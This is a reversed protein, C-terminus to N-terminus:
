QKPEGEKLQFQPQAPQALKKRVEERLWSHVSLTANHIDAQHEVSCVKCESM